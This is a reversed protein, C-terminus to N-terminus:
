EEPPLYGLERLERRLQPLHERRVLATTPSLQRGILARTQPLATLERMARESKVRLLAVEQLAVQGHREAWVQIQGAVNAPVRDLTVQRLFALVQEVRIGRALGRGLSAASLHYRYVMAGRSSADPRPASGQPDAFREAQFRTYLRASLPVEISFDPRVVVPLRPAAGEGPSPRPEAAPELASHLFALGASTIRCAVKGGADGADPVAGPAVSVLGLSRLVGACLDAVLAGEVREWSEFGALYERSGADRM